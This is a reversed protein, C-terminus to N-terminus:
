GKPLDNRVGEILTWTPPWNKVGGYSMLPHNRLEMRASNKRTNGSGPHIRGGRNTAGHRLYLLRLVGRIGLSQRARYASDMSAHLCQCFDIVRVLNWLGHWWCFYPLRNELTVGTVPHEGQGAQQRVLEIIKPAGANARVARGLRNENGVIGRLDFQVPQHIQPLILGGVLSGKNAGKGSIV